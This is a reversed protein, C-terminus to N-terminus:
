RKHGEDTISDKGMMPTTGIPVGVRLETEAFCPGGMLPPPGSIVM